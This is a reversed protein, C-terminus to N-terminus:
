LAAEFEVDIAAMLLVIVFRRSACEGRARESSAGGNWCEVFPMRDNERDAFLAASSVVM